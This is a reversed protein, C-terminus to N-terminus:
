VLIERAEERAKDANNLESLIDILLDLCNNSVKDLRYDCNLCFVNSTYDGAQVVLEGAQCHPCTFDM